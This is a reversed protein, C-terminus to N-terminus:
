RYPVPPFTAEVTLYVSSDGSRNLSKQRSQCRASRAGGAGGGGGRADCRGGFRLQTRHMRHRAAPSLFVKREPGGSLELARTKPFRKGSPGANGHPSNRLPGPKRHYRRKKKPIKPPLLNPRKKDNRPNAPTQPCGTPKLAHAARLDDKLGPVITTLLPSPRQTPHPLPGRLRVHAAELSLRAAKWPM